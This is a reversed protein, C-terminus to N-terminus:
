VLVTSPAPVRTADEPSSPSPASENSQILNMMPELWNPEVEVDSNLLVYYPADVQELAKNYGGAFGYNEALEIRNVNPFEEKLLQVSGDSSANDAVIVEVNEYTSALVSPLLKQLLDKTNYNLIVVAVKEPKM